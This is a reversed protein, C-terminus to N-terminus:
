TSSFSVRQFLGLAPTSVKGPLLILGLPIHVELADLAQCVELLPHPLGQPPPRAEQGQEDGVGRSRLLRSAHRSTDPPQVQHGACCSQSHMWGSPPRTGGDEPLTQKKEKKVEKDAEQGDEGRCGRWWSGLTGRVAERFGEDQGLDRWIDGGERESRM